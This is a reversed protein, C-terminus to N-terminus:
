PQEKPTWNVDPIVKAKGYPLLQQVLPAGLQWRGRYPGMLPGYEYPFPVSVYVNKGDRYIDLLIGDYYRTQKAVDVFEALTKFKQGNVSVIIDCTKVGRKLAEGLGADSVFMGKVKAPIKFETRIDRTIPAVKMGLWLANNMRELPEKGAPFRFEPLLEFANLTIGLLLVLFAGFCIVYLARERGLKQYYDSFLKNM